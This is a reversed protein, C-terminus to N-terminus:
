VCSSGAASPTVTGEAAEASAHRPPPDPAPNPAMDYVPPAVRASLMKPEILIWDILRCEFFLMLLGVPLMLWGGAEALFRVTAKQYGASLVAGTVTLHVTSFAIAIPVASFMLLLKEWSARRSVIVYVTAAALFPMVIRIGSFAEAAPLIGAAMHISRDQAIAPLGLLQLCWAARGAGDRQLSEAAFRGLPDPLPFMLWVLGIVPWLAFLMQQGALLRISGAMCLLFAIVDAYPVAGFVAAGHLLVGAALLWVGRRDFDIIGVQLRTWRFWTLAAALFPIWLGYRFVPDSLWQRVTTDLLASFLGCLLTALVVAAAIRIPRRGDAPVM